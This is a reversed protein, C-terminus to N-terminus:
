MPKSWATTDELQVRETTPGSPVGRAPLYM